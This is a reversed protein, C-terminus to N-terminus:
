KKRRFLCTSGLTEIFEWESIKKLKDCLEVIDPFNKSYDHFILYGGVKIFKSWKDFDNNVNEKDHAGDIFLVDIQMDFFKIVDNFNGIIPIINKIKFEKINKLYDIGSFSSDQTCDKHTDISIVKGNLKELSQAWLITSRGKYTVLEVMWCNKPLTYKDTFTRIFFEDMGTLYGPIKM